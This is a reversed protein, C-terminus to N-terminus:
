FATAFIWSFFQSYLHKLSYNVLNYIYEGKSAKFQKDLIYLRAWVDPSEMGDGGYQGAAAEGITLTERLYKAKAVDGLAAYCRESIALHKGELSLKALTRWM